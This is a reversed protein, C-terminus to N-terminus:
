DTPPTRKSIRTWNEVLKKNLGGIDYDHLLAHRLSKTHGDCSTIQDDGNLLLKVLIEDVLEPCNVPFVGLADGAEYELPADGFALAVHRTEKLSGDKNLNINEIVEVSLPNKKTIVNEEEVDDDDVALSGMAEIVGQTWTSFEDDFDVDCDIRNFMRKAGLKELQEDFEIGCKCFDPYSSDGIALISYSLDELKPAADGLLFQHFDAANDPPEGDGYTSTIIILHTESALQENPFESLDIVKPTLGSKKALKSFKVALTQCTGTQSGWLVTIPTAAVPALAEQQAKLIESFQGFVSSLFGDHWERQEASFPAEKPLVPPELLTPKSM